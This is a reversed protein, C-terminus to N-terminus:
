PARATTCRYAPLGFQLLMTLCASCRHQEQSMKTGEAQRGAQGASGGCAAGSSPPHGAMSPQRQLLPHRGCCLLGEGGGHAGAPHCCLPAVRMCVCLAVQVCLYQCADDNNGQWACRSTGLRRVGHLRVQLPGSPAGEVHVEGIYADALLHHQPSAHAAMSRCASPGAGACSAVRSLPLLPPLLLPPPLPPLHAGQQTAQLAHSIM